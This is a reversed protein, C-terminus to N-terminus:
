QEKGAITYCDLLSIGNVKEGNFPAYYKGLLQYGGCIGIFVAGNESIEQFETKYKQLQKSVEIQQKDQGGGIFFLDFQSPAFNENENILEIEVDIGRWKMRQKLTLINGWDGYLNLLKPYLHAIRLIM